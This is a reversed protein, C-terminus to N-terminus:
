RFLASSDFYIEDGNCTRRWSSWHFASRSIGSLFTNWGLLRIAEKVSLREEKTTDAKILTYTSRSIAKEIQPIDSKLYGANLLSKIDKESLKM